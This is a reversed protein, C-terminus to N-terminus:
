KIPTFDIVKSRPSLNIEDIATGPRANLMLMAAAAVDEPLLHQHPEPGPRFDLEQFFDSQVMGPNIIGVRVGKGAAEERLSQALGRLGFKAACYLAGKQGGQLAAESGM